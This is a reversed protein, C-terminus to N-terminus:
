DAPLDASGNGCGGALEAALWGGYGHSSGARWHLWMPTEYSHLQELTRRLEELREPRTKLLLLVETAREIRGQWHYQSNCPQLTVCGVLRRELLALALAEARQPDAESTLVLEVVPEAM